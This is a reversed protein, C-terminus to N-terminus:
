YHCPVSGIAQIVEEDTIEDAPSFHEAVRNVPKFSTDKPDMYIKARGDSDANLRLADTLQRRETESLPKFQIGM